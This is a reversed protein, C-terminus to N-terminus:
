TIVTEMRRRDPVNVCCVARIQCGALRGVPGAMEGRDSTADVLAMSPAVTASAGQCGAASETRSSVRPLSLGRWPRDWGCPVNVGIGEYTCWCRLGLRCLLMDCSTQLRYAHSMIHPGAFQREMFCEFLNLEIEINYSPVILCWTTCDAVKSTPNQNAILYCCSYTYLMCVCVTFLIIEVIKLWLYLECNNVSLRCDRNKAVAVPSNYCCPGLKYVCYVLM